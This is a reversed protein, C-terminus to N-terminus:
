LAMIMIVYILLSVFFVITGKSLTKTVDREIAMVLGYSLVASILIKAIGLIATNTYGMSIFYTILSSLAFVIIILSITNTLLPKLGPTEPMSFSRSNKARDLSGKGRSFFGPSSSTKPFSSSTNSSPTYEETVEPIGSGVGEGVGEEDDYVQVGGYEDHQASFKKALTMLGDKDIIKINRRDAYNVASKTFYSTTVVVIKSAKLTKGVMEMEKLVDLGVEWRDDYNKCAVVVGIDGLITPLVGYIDIIHRSTQFNRYVKFGSEEMVRAMFRVLRNKDLEGM